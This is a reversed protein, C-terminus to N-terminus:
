MLIPVGKTVRFEYTEGVEAEDTAQLCWEIETYKDSNLNISDAPNSVDHLVGDQFDEYQKVGPPVLQHTTIEGDIINSSSHIIFRTYDYGASPSASLSPSQSKSMSKSRSHSPTHSPTHSPSASGTDELYGIQENGTIYAGIVSAYSGGRGNNKHTSNIKYDTPLTGGANAWQVNEYYSHTDPNGGGVLHGSASWTGLSTYTAQGTGYQHVRWNQTTYYINYDMYTPEGDANGKLYLNSGGLRDIVNNYIKSNSVGGGDDTRTLWEDSSGNSGYISNNYFELDSGEPETSGYTYITSANDSNNVFINQYVKAGRWAPGGAAYGIKIGGNRNASTGSNRFFCYRVTFNTVGSKFNPGSVVNEFTCYEVTINTTYYVNIANYHDGPANTAGTFYCNRIFINTATNVAVPQANPFSLPVNAPLYFKCNQITCFAAGGRIGVSPLGEGSNWNATLGSGFQFGDIVIYNKAYSGMILEAGGGAPSQYSSTMIPAEEPYNRFTIPNGSTGSNSPNYIPVEYNNAAVTYTGGSGGRFYVTDGAIANAMATLPTCPTAINTANAWNTSATTSDVYYTGM